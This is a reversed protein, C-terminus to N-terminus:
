DGDEVPFPFDEPANLSIRVFQNWREVALRADQQHAVVASQHWEMHAQTCARFRDVAALFENWLQDNNDDAPRTPPVCADGQYDHAQVSPAGSLGGLVLCLIFVTYLSRLLM